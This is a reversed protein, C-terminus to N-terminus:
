LVTARSYFLTGHVSFFKCNHDPHCLTWSWTCMLICNGLSFIPLHPPLPAISLSSPMSTPSVITCLLRMDKGLALGTTPFYSGSYLHQSFPQHVGYDTLYRTRLFSFHHRHVSTRMKLPDFLAHLLRRHTIFCHESSTSPSPIPASHHHIWLFYPQVRIRYFCHFACSVKSLGMTHTQTGTHTCAPPVVWKRKLCSKECSWTQLTVPNTSLHAGPVYVNTKLVYCQALLIEHIRHVSWLSSHKHLLFEALDAMEKGLRLHQYKRHLGNLSLRLHLTDVGIFAESVSVTSTSCALSRHCCLSAILIVWSCIITQWWILQQSHVEWILHFCGVTHETIHNCYYPRVVVFPFPCLFCDSFEFWM